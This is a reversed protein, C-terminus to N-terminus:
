QVDLVCQLPRNFIERWQRKLDFLHLNCSSLTKQQGIRCEFLFNEWPAFFLCSIFLILSKQEIDTCSPLQLLLLQQQQITFVCFRNRYADRGELDM